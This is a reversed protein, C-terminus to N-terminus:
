HLVNICAKSFLRSVKQLVNIESVRSKNLYPTSRTLISLCIKGPFRKCASIILIGVPFLYSYYINKPQAYYHWNPQPIKFIIPGLIWPKRGLILMSFPFQKLVISCHIISQWFTGFNYKWLWNEIGFISPIKEFCFNM